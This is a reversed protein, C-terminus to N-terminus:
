PRGLADLSRRSSASSSSGPPILVEDFIHNPTQHLPSPPCTQHGLLHENIMVLYVHDYETLHPEGLTSPPRGHLRPCNTAQEVSEVPSSHCGVPSSHCELPSSHCNWPNKNHFTMLGSITRTKATSSASPVAFFSFIIGPFCLTKTAKRTPGEARM